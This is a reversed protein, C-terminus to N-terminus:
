ISLPRLSLTTWPAVNPAGPMAGTSALSGPLLVSAGGSGSAGLPDSPASAGAKATVPLSPSAERSESACAVAHCMVWGACVIWRRASM